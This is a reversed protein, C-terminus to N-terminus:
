LTIRKQTVEFDENPFTIQTKDGEGLLSVPSEEISFLVQTLNQIYNRSNESLNRMGLSFDRAKREGRTM